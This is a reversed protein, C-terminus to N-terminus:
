QSRKGSPRRPTSSAPACQALIVKWGNRAAVATRVIHAVEDGDAREDSICVTRSFEGALAQREAPRIGLELIRAYTECSYAFTERKRYEIDLLWVRSRTERLGLRGRKCNHFVHAAEHVIFDAFRDGEHFYQPSVYCTTNQSVGVLNPADQSLLEAGLGALYLNALTWASHNFSEELLVTEINESTLFIVSKELMALVVNREAGPFLGDVMPEVKARTLAVADLGAPIAHPTKVERLRVASILAARLEDHGRTAREMINGPWADYVPDSSGTLLYREVEDAVNPPGHSM